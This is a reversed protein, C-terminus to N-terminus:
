LSSLKGKNSYILKRRFGPEIHDIFAILGEMEEIEDTSFMGLRYRHYMSRVKRKLERGVSIKKDPTLIIGTVTRRSKRSAFVTKDENITIRPSRMESLLLRVQALVQDLHGKESCSFTLDDAYRTYRISTGCYRSIASDFEYIISNSVHPSSPAGICLELTSGRQPAWTLCHAVMELADPLLETGLHRSLHQRIDEKKVSPFFRNFDVKLMYNSRVHQAANFKISRGVRYATVSEHVPLGQLVNSVLWRQIAKVERAPQAVRRNSGDKKEIEFSKYRLPSTRIILNLHSTLLGLDISMRDLLGRYDYPM